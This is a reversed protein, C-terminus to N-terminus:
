LGSVKTLPPQSMYDGTPIDLVGGGAQNISDLAKQLAQTDDTQGDGLAGYDTLAIVQNTNPIVGTAKVKNIVDTQAAENSVAMNTMLSRSSTQQKSLINQYDPNSTISQYPLDQTANNEKAEDSNVVPTAASKMSDPNEFNSNNQSVSSSNTKNVANGNNDVNSLTDNFTTEDAHANLTSTFTVAGWISMSIISATVLQKGDKYLKYHLREDHSLRKKSKVMLM